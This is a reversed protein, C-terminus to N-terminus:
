RVSPPGGGVDSSGLREAPGGNPSAGPEPMQRQRYGFDYVAYALLCVIPLAYSAAFQLWYSIGFESLLAGSFNDNTYLLSWGQYLIFLAFLAAPWYFRRSLRCAGICILALIVFGVWFELTSEPM